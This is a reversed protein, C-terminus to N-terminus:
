TTALPGPTRRRQVLMSLRAFTLTRSVETNTQQAPPADVRTHGDRSLVFDGLCALEPRRPDLLVVARRAAWRVVYPGVHPQVYKGSSLFILESADIALCSIRLVARYTSCLTCLLLLGEGDVRADIPLLLRFSVCESTYSAFAYVCVCASASRM